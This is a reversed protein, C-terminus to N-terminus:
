CIGLDFCFFASEAASLTLSRCVDMWCVEDRALGTSKWYHCRSSSPKEPSCAWSTPQSSFSVKPIGMTLFLVKECVQRDWVKPCFNGSELWHARDLSTLIPEKVFHKLEPQHPETSRTSAQSGFPEALKIGLWPVHRPQPGPGQYSTCLLCGCM